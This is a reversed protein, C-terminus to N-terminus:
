RRQSRHVAHSDGPDSSHVVPLPTDPMCKSRTGGSRFDMSVLPMLRAAVVVLFGRNSRMVDLWRYHREDVWRRLTSDGLWRGLWYSALAGALVGIWSILTGAWVGLIVGNAAILLMSPLPAIMAQLTLLGISVLPAWSGLVAFMAQVKGADALVAIWAWLQEQWILFTSGILASATVGAVIFPLTKRHPIRM